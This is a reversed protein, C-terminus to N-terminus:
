AGIGIHTDAPGGPAVLSNLFLNWTQLNPIQHEKLQYSTGKCDIYDKNTKYRGIQCNTTKWNPLNAILNIGMLPNSGGSGMLNGGVLRTIPGGPWGAQGAWAARAALWCVALWGPGEWIM